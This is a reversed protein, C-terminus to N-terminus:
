VVNMILDEFLFLAFGHSSEPLHAPMLLDFKLMVDIKEHVHLMKSNTWIYTPRCPIATIESKKLVEKLENQSLNPLTLEISYENQLLLLMLEKRFVANSNPRNIDADAQALFQLLFM